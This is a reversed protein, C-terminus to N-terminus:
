KKYKPPSPISLLYLKNLDYRVIENSKILFDSSSYKDGSGIHVPSLTELIIKSM